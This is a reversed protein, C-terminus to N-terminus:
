RAPTLTTETTGEPKESDWVKGGGVWTQFVRTQRIQSPTATAPDTDVLIFDARQGPALRGFRSDAFGAWAASATYAALATARDPREAGERALATALGAWPDPREVPSGSGFALAAGAAKLSAWPHVGALRDPGLRAEDIRRDTAQATPQVSAVIGGNAAIRTVTPRDKPVIVQARELRWRRDGKYTATLDDIAGLLTANAEDGTASVAVQFNDMAARSMLNGLQTQSLRPLGRTAPADAYPAKLWGGRPGLAGDMTFTMGGMRLRDAYLWPSPAPGAILAMADTGSAYAMIRVYLRNADGARRFAQWDRIDTGMDTVATLGRRFFERQAIQLATDYDRATPAPVARAVLDMATEALVGAPAGTADREISGGVPATTAATLGAAKLAATNAWGAHGDARELWVPRGPVAADLEAATPLRSLGWREANWGRGIIWPREPHAAAFAAIRTLADALSATDTLDLTLAAFGTQLVHTHADILGPLLVRGQGDLHFKVGKKSPKQGPAYVARIVGFDDYVLASVPQLTGDEAIRQGHVNDVLTDAHAPASAAFLLALLAPARTGAASSVFPSLASPRPM